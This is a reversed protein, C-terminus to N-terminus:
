GSENFHAALLIADYIDISSDGNLDANPNWKANGPTTNFANSLLIADFIDVSGDHNIDGILPLYFSTHSTILVQYYFDYTSAYINYHGHPVSASPFRFILSYTGNPDSLLASRSTSIPSLGLSSTVSLSASWEQCYPYGGDKPFASLLSGYVVFNGIVGRDVIQVARFHVTSVSNPSLTGSAVNFGIAASTPDYFVITETVNHANIQDFNKWQAYIWVDERPKFSYKPVGNQDCPYLATFNVLWNTGVASGTPRTRITFLSGHPDRVEIAVIGNTVPINGPVWKLSGNINVTDSVGYISKDTMVTLSLTNGPIFSATVVKNSNMVIMGPNASSNLDGTWGHFLWGYDAFATMFVVDNYNYPGTGNLSVSGNGVITITLTYTVQPLNESGFAYYTSTSALLPKALLISIAVLFIVSLLTKRTM